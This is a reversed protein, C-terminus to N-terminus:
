PRPDPMFLIAMEKEQVEEMPFQEPNRYLEFYVPWTGWTKELDWERRLVKLTEASIGNCLPSYLVYLNRSLDIESFQWVEENLHTYKGSHLLPFATGCYAPPIRQEKMYQVAADRHDAWSLYTLTSDWGKAIGVPYIWLHGTLLAGITLGSIWRKNPWAQLIVQMAYISMLIFEALFYRHGPPNHFPIFSASLVATSLGTLLLLRQNGAHYMWKGTFWVLFILLWLFIRGQDVFRFGISAMNHIWGDFDTFEHQHSWNASLPHTLWGTQLKHWILWGVVPLLGSLGKLWFAWAKRKEPYALWFFLLLGPIVLIGRLSSFSLLVLTFFLRSSSQARVSNVVGLFAAVMLIDNSFLTAQASLGPVALAAMLVPVRFPEEVFHWIFRTLEWALWILIPLMLLHSVWLSQGAFAWGAALYLPWLPPHGADLDTPLIWSTLGSHLYWDAQRAFLVTDWFFPNNIFFIPWLCLFVSAGLFAKNQLTLPM